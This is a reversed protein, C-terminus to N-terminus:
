RTRRLAAVWQPQTVSWMGKRPGDDEIRLDVAEPNHRLLAAAAAFKELGEVSALLAISLARDPRRSQTRLTPEAPAGRQNGGSNGRCRATRCDCRRGGRTTRALPPARRHRLSTTRQRRYRRGTRHFKQAHSRYLRRNM